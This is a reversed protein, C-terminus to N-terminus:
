TGFVHNNDWKKDFSFYMTLPTRVAVLSMNRDAETVRSYYFWELFVRSNHSYFDCTPPTWRKSFWHTWLVAQRTRVKSPAGSAPRILVAPHGVVVTFPEWEWSWRHTSWCPDLHDANLTLCASDASILITLHPWPTLLRPWCHFSPWLHQFRHDISSRSWLPPSNIILQPPPLPQVFSVFYRPWRIFLVSHAVLVASLSAATKCLLLNFSEM